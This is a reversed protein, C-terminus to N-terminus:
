VPWHEGDRFRLNKASATTPPAKVLDAADGVEPRGVQRVPVLMLALYQM